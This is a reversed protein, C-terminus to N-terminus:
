IKIRADRFAKLFSDLLRISQNKKVNIKKVVSYITHLTLSYFTWLIMSAKNFIHQKQFKKKWQEGAKNLKNNSSEKRETDIGKKM